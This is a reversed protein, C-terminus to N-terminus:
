PFCRPSRNAASQKRRWQGKWRGDWACRAERTDFAPIAILRNCLATSSPKRQRRFKRRVEAKSAGSGGPRARNTGANALRRSGKRVRFVGSGPRMDRGRVGTRWLFVVPGCGAGASEEVVVSAIAEDLGVVVRAVAEHVDAGNLRSAHVAQGVVLAQVVLDFAAPVALRACDIQGASGSRRLSNRAADHGTIRCKANSGRSV